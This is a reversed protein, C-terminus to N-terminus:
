PIRVLASNQAEDYSQESEFREALDTKNAFNHPFQHRLENVRKSYARVTARGPSIPDRKTQFAQKEDFVGLTVMSRHPGHYYYAEPDFAERLKSAEREAAERRDGDFKGDFYAVQLSFAGSYAKLNYQDEIPRGQDTLAVLEADDFPQQGDITARRASTLAAQANPTTRRQYKGQYLTTTGDIDAQWLGALSTQRALEKMMARAQQQRDGGTFSALKVSWRPGRSLGGPGDGGQGQARGGANSDAYRRFSEFSQDVVRTRVCGGLSWAAVLGVLVLVAGPRPSGQGQRAGRGLQLRNLFL